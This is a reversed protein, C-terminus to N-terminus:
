KQFQDKIFIPLNILIPQDLYLDKGFVMSSGLTDTDPRKLIVLQQNERWFHKNWKYFNQITLVRGDEIDM